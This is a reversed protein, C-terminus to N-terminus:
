NDTIKKAGSLVAHGTGWPKARGQEQIVYDVAHSHYKPIIVENFEKEASPNIVFVIRKIGAKLADYISYDMIAEGSPGIGDIQKMGGYRSGLGAAMILLTINQMM